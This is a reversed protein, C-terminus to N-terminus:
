QSFQRHCSITRSCRPCRGAPPAVSRPRDTRRSASPAAWDTATATTTSGSCVSLFSLCVCVCLHLVCSTTEILWKGYLRLRIEYNYHSGLFDPSIVSLCVCTAVSIQTSHSQLFSPLIIGCYVIHLIIYM